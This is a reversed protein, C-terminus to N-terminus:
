EVNDYHLSIQCTSRISLQWCIQEEYKVAYCRANLRLFVYFLCLVRYKSLPFSSFLRLITSSIALPGTEDKISTLKTLLWDSKEVGLEGGGLWFISIFKFFKKNNEYNIPLQLAFLNNSCTQEEGYKVGIVDRLFGYFLYPLFLYTFCINYFHFNRSHHCSTIKLNM